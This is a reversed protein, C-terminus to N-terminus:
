ANTLLERKGVDKRVEEAKQLADWGTGLPAKDPSHTRKLRPESKFRQHKGKDGV